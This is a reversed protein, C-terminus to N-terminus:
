GGNLTYKEAIGHFLMKGSTLGIGMDSTPDMVIYGRALAEDMSNIGFLRDLSKDPM